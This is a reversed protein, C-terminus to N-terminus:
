ALACLVKGGARTNLSNVAGDTVPWLSRSGLGAGLGCQLVTGAPLRELCSGLRLTQLQVDAEAWELEQM